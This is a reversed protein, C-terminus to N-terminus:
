EEEEEKGTNARGSLGDNQQSETAVSAAPAALQQQQQALYFNLTKHMETLQARIGTIRDQTKDAEAKDSPNENAQKRSLAVTERAIHQEYEEIKGELSEIRSEVTRIRLQLRNPAEFDQVGLAGGGAGGGAGAGPQTAM